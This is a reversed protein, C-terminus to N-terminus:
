SKSMLKKYDILINRTSIGPERRIFDLDNNKQRTFFNLIWGTITISCFTLINNYIILSFLNRTRKQKVYLGCIESAIFNPWSINILKYSYFMM